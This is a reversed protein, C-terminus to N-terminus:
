DEPSEGSFSGHKSCFVIGNKRYFYGNGKCIPWSRNKLYEVLKEKYISLYQVDDPIKKVGPQSNYNVVAADLMKTNNKCVQEVAKHKANIYPLSAMTLIIALISIIVMLELFSFAKKM